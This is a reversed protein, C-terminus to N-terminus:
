NKSTFVDKGKLIEPKGSSGIYSLNWDTFIQLTPKHNVLKMVGTWGTASNCDQTSDSWAVSFSLTWSQADMLGVVPYPTGKCQFGEARNVFTGTLSFTGQSPQQPKFTLTMSSGLENTFSLTDGDALITALDKSTAPTAVTLTLIAGIAIPMLMSILTRM